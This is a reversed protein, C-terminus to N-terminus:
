LACVHQVTDHQIKMRRLYQEIVACINSFNYLQVSVAYKKNATISTLNTEHEVGRNRCYLIVIGDALNIM